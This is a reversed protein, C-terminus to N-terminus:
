ETAGFTVHLHVFSVCWLIGIVVVYVLAVILTVKQTENPQIQSQFDRIWLNSELRTDLYPMKLVGYFCAFPYFPLQTDLSCCAVFPPNFPSVAVAVGGAFCRPWAAALGIITEFSVNWILVM